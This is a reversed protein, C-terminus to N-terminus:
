CTEIGAPSSPIPALSQFFESCFVQEMEPVLADFVEDALQAIKEGNAVLHGDENRLGVQIWCQFANDMRIMLNKDRSLIRKAESVDSVLEM